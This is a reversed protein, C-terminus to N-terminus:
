RCSGTESVWINATSPGARNWPKELATRLFNRGEPSRDTNKKWILFPWPGAPIVYVEGFGDLLAPPFWFVGSTWTISFSPIFPKSPGSFSSGKPQFVVFPPCTGSGKAPDRGTNLRNLGVKGVRPAPSLRFLRFKIFLRKKNGRRVFFVPAKFAIFKVPFICKAYWEFIFGEWRALFPPVLLALLLLVVRIWNEWPLLHHCFTFIKRFTSHGLSLNMFYIDSNWIKSPLTKSLFLWRPFVKKKFETNTTKFILSVMFIFIASVTKDGPSDEHGEIDYNKPIPRELILLLYKKNILPENWITITKFILQVLDPIGNRIM